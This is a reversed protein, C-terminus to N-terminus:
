AYRARSRFGYASVPLSGGDRTPPPKKDADDDIEFRRQYIKRLQVRAQELRGRLAEDTRQGVETPLTERVATIAQARSQRLLGTRALLAADLRTLDGTRVLNALIILPDSHQLRPLRFSEPDRTLEYAEFEDWDADHNPATSRRPSRLAAYRVRDMLRNFLYPADIDFPQENDDAPEGALLEVIRYVLDSHMLQTQHASLRDPVLAKLAPVAFGIAVLMQDGRHARAHCALHTWVRDAIHEGDVVLNIKNDLRRILQTRLRLPSLREEPPGGLLSAPLTIPAPRAQQSLMVFATEVRDLPSADLRQDDVDPAAARSRREAPRTSPPPTTTPQTATADSPVDPTIVAPNTDRHSDLAANTATRVATM